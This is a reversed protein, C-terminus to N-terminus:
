NFFDEFGKPNDIIWKKKQLSLGKDYDEKSVECRNIIFTKNKDTYSLPENMTWYKFGGSYYYTFTRNGWKEKIGWNRIFLAVDCFESDIQWEKRLTYYHPIEPMTKAFRFNNTSLLTEVKEKSITNKNM